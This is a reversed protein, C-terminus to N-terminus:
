AETSRRRRTALALSGLALLAMSAPEPIPNPGTSLGVNDLHGNHVNFNPSTDDRTFQLSLTVTSGASLLIGGLDIDFSTYEVDGGGSELPITGSGLSVSTDGLLFLEFDQAVNPRNTGGDFHFTSLFRDAGSTDTFAFDFRAAQAGNTWVFSETAAVNGTSLGPVPVSGVSGDTSGLRSVGPTAPAGAANLGSRTIAVDLGDQIPANGPTLNTTSSRFQDIALILDAQAAVPVLSVSFAGILLQKKM